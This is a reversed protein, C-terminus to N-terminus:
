SCNETIVLFNQIPRARMIEFKSSVQPNFLTCTDWLILPVMCIKYNKHKTAITVKMTLKSWKQSEKESSTIGFDYKLYPWSSFCCCILFFFGKIYYISFWCWLQEFDMCLHRKFVTVVTRTGLSACEYKLARVPHLSLVLVVLNHTTYPSHVKLATSSNACHSSRL